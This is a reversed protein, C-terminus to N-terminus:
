YIYTQHRQTSSNPPTQHKKQRTHLYQLIQTYDYPTNFPIFRLIKDKIKFKKSKSQPKKKKNHTAPIGKLQAATYERFSSQCGTKITINVITEQM